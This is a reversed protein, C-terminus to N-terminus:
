LLTYFPMDLLRVAIFFATVWPLHNGMREPTAWDFTLQGQIFAENSLWDWCSTFGRRWAGRPKVHTSSEM